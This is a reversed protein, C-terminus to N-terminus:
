RPEYHHYQPQSAAVAARHPSASDASSGGSAWQGSRRRGSGDHTKKLISKLPEKHAVSPTQPAKEGAVAAPPPKRTAAATQPAKHSDPQPRAGAQAQTPSGSSGGADSSSSEAYLPDKAGYLAQPVGVQGEHQGKSVAPDAFAVTAKRVAQDPSHFKADAARLDDAPARAPSERAAPSGSDRRLEEPKKAGGAGSFQCAQPVPLTPSDAYGAPCVAPMGSPGAYGCPVAQPVDSEAAFGCPSSLQQGGPYGPVVSAAQPAKEAGEAPHGVFPSHATCACCVEKPLAPVPSAQAGEGVQSCCDM